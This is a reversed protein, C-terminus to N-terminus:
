DRVLETKVFYEQLGEAAENMAIAEHEAREKRRYTAHIFIMPSNPVQYMVIYVYQPLSSIEIVDGSFAHGYDRASARSAFIHPNDNSWYYGNAQTYTLFQDVYQVIWGLAQKSM